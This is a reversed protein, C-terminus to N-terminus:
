IPADKIAQVLDELEWADMLDYEGVETRRLSTLYAGADLAQGLDHILSRIYTGKSCYVGFKLVPWEHEIIKFEHITVPRSELEIKKGARAAKYARQGKVKVASFIPPVQDINGTFGSAAKTVDDFNLHDTSTVDEEPMEADYTATVAGLKFTGDYRKDLGQLEHLWKTGKGIGILVLGTALPDLTGAHGVKIKKVGLKHRLTWRIKGVVDFSTWDLPKNVLVLQGAQFDTDGDINKLIRIM